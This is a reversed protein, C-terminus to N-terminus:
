EEAGELLCLSRVDRRVVGSRTRVLAQRVLGDLGPYTENAVGMPWEGRPGDRKPLLVLDGKRINRQPNLWKLTVQLTPM